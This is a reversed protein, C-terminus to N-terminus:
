RASGAAPGQADVARLRQGARARRSGRALPRAGRAGRRRARRLGARQGAVAGRAVGHRHRRPMLEIARQAWEIAAAGCLRSSAMFARRQAITAALRVDDGRHEWARQLLREAADLDGAFIALYAWVSDRRAGPAVSSQEALRRAAGGDGSYLLAEIADLTLREREGPEATVRRAALLLRIANVWAGRARQAAAAQELEARLDEDAGTHAEVRHHLAADPSLALTAAAGHLQSRRTHPMAEYVAARTLPHTFELWTGDDCEAVRLLGTSAARDVTPLADALAALPLAAHTPARVGLVAVADLLTVVDPPCRRLQADVLHAYPRPVPLARDDYLWSGNAPLERLVARLHLPNGGTHEILREAAGATLPVGLEEGIARADDPALPQPRIVTEGALKLWGEPLVESAAGRVVLVFLTASESLRRACFLLARLSDADALHADDIVVVTRRPEDAAGLRDLLALGVTLHQTAGLADATDIGASRLLQDIIAFSVGRESEDGSARLIRAEPHLALFREALTTKGIGGDGEIVLIEPAGGAVAGFCEGLAAIETERGVFAQTM